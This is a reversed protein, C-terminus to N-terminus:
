AGIMESSQKNGSVSYTTKSNQDSFMQQEQSKVREQKISQNEQYWDKDIAMLYLKQDTTQSAPRSIISGKNVHGDEGITLEGNNSVFEYGADQLERFQRETAWYGRKNSPLGDVKLKLKPMGAPIRKKQQRTQAMNIGSM